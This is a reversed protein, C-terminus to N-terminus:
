SSIGNQQEVVMQIIQDLPTKLRYGTFRDIKELCPVRRRMDEFEKFGEGYAQEYPVFVIASSSGTVGIVRRALEEITIEENNGVNFIEGVATANGLLAAVTAVVDQVCAFCRSQQGDGYVTLPEGALAQAIFHPLVMGYRATQRPGVTNFFRTIIVPLGHEKWYALALFEDAAKACAYAWRSKLPAGIVLDDDECFPVKRSKGYVESTSALLVLKKEKVAQELINETGRINTEMSGVPNELIFRVGVAAALHVIVDVREVLESLLPSDLISGITLHYRPINKLHQINRLAGTSLNDLAWVEHNQELLLDTLHSGIFGAGGTILVRMPCM